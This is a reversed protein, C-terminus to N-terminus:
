RVRCDVRLSGPFKNVAFNAPTHDATRREALFRLEVGHIVTAFNEGLLWRVRRESSIPASRGCLNMDCKNPTIVGYSDKIVVVVRFLSCQSNTVQDSEGLDSILRWTMHEAVNVVVPSRLALAKSGTTNHPM